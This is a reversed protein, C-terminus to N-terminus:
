DPPNDHSKLARQRRGMRSFDQALINQGREVKRDHVSGRLEAHRALGKVANDRLAIRSGHRRLHRHPEARALTVKGKAILYVLMDGPKVRLAERVEKPLTTQVKSTIKAFVVKM